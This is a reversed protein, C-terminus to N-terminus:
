RVASSKVKDRTRTINKRHYKCGSVTLLAALVKCQSIAARVARQKGVKNDHKAAFAAWARVFFDEKIGAGVVHRIIYFGVNFILSSGARREKAKEFQRARAQIQGLQPFYM